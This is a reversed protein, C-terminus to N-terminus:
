QLHIGHLALADLLQGRVEDQVQFPKLEVEVRQAPLFNVVQKLDRVPQVQLWVSQLADHRAFAFLGLLYSIHMSVSSVREHKM